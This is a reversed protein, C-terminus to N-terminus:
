RQWKFGGQNKYVADETIIATILANETVDFAPNYVNVGEPAMPKEYWLNTVEEPSRHEIKIDKGTACDLDITSTPACVYFPVNYHKALVALASTGIKNATDGNAAIRDAGVFIADVAGTQMLSSSMNDCLLTVDIGANQLEWATLRAGQLLPRTEDAYVKINLGKEAAAYVPALATGYNVAALRGANCHTLVSFGDKILTLGNEGIRRCVTLDQEKLELAKEILIKKIEEVPLTQNNRATEEMIDLAWFLNVATPRSAALYDKTESLRSLFSTQEDTEINQAVMALTIAAAVGIAPAGRVKLSKIAEWADEPSTIELFVTEGPLKTQDIIVLANKERNYDVTNFNM